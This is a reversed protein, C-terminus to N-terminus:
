RMQRLLSQLWERERKCCLAVEITVYRSRSRVFDVNDVAGQKSVTATESTATYLMASRIAGAATRSGTCQKYFLECCCCSRYLSTLQVAAVVPV